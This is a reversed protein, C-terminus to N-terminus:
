KNKLEKFFKYREIFSKTVDEVSKELEGQLKQSSAVHISDSNWTIAQMFVGDSLKARTLHVEEFLRGDVSFAYGEPINYIIVLIQFFPLPPKGSESKGAPDLGADKFQKEVSATLKDVPLDVKLDDPKSVEVEVLISKDLNLMHDSGVWKGDKMATIGPYTYHDVAAQAQVGLLTMLTTLLFKKM